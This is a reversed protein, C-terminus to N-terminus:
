FPTEAHIKEECLKLLNLYQGLTMEGRASAIFDFHVLGFRAVRNINKLMLHYTNKRQIAGILTAFSKNYPM